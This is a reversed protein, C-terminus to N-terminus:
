LRFFSWHVGSCIFLFSSFESQHIGPEALGWGGVVFALLNENVSKLLASHDSHKCVFIPMTHEPWNSHPWESCVRLQRIWLSFHWFSHVNADLEASGQWAGLKVDDRPLIYRNGCIDFVFVFFLIYEWLFM